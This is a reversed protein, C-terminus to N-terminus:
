DIHHTKSPDKVADIASQILIREFLGSHHFRSWWTILWALNLHYLITEEMAPLLWFGVANNIRTKIFKLEGHPFSSLLSPPPITSALIHCCWGLHQNNDLPINCHNQWPPIFPLNFSYSVNASNNSEKYKFSDQIPWLEWKFMNSYIFYFVKLTSIITKNWLINLGIAWM